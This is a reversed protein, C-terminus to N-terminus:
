MLMMFILWFILSIKMSFTASAHQLRKRNHLAFHIIAVALLIRQKRKSRREEARKERSSRMEEGGIEKESRM